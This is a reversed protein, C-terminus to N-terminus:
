LMKNLVSVVRDFDEELYTLFRPYLQLGMDVTEKQRDPLILIIRNEHLLDKISLFDILDERNNALLLCIGEKQRARPASLWGVLGDFTEFFSAAYENQLERHLNRLPKGTQETDTAYFALHM